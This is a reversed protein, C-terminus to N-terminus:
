PRPLEIAELARKAFREALPALNSADASAANGSKARNAIGVFIVSFRFLAFAMHFPLLPATHRAHAMYEAIFEERTPIGQTAWDTGLIGGYEEPSTLWPMVCFGLDALPHGLTSLEWDLVAVVRPETPHLLM